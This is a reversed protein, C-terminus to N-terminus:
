RRPGPMTAPPAAKPALIVQRLVSLPVAGNKLVSDHFWRLDFDKGKRKKAEQRLAIIERQGVKYSLAQGPWITYRDVEAVIEGESMPTNDKM